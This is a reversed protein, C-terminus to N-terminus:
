PWAPATRQSYINELNKLLARAIVAFEALTSSDDVGFLQKVQSSGAGLDPTADLGKCANWWGLPTQDPLAALEGRKGESAFLAMFAKAERCHKIYSDELHLM